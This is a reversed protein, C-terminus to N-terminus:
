PRRDPDCHVSHPEGPGSGCQPCLLDLIREQLDALAEAETSGMGALPRNDAGDYLDEHIAYFEPGWPTRHMEVRITM